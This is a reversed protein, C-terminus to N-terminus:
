CCTSTSSDCCANNEEENVEKIEIKCCSDSNNEKGSLMKILNIM